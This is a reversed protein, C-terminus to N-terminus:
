EFLGRLFALLSAAGQFLGMISALGILACEAGILWPRIPKDDPAPWQKMDPVSLLVSDRCNGRHKQAGHRAQSLAGPFSEPVSSNTFRPCVADDDCGSWPVHMRKPSTAPGGDTDGVIGVRM